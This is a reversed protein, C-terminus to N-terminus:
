CYNYKIFKEECNAIDLLKNVMEKVNDESGALTGNVGEKAVLVTGRCDTKSAM